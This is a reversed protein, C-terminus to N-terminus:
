ELKWYVKNSLRVRHRYKSRMHNIKAHESNSNMESYRGPLPYLGRAFLDTAFPNFSPSLCIAYALLCTAVFFYLLYFICYNINDYSGYKGTRASKIFGNPFRWTTLAPRTSTGPGSFATRGQEIKTLLNKISKELWINERGARGSM